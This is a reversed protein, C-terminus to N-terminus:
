EIGVFASLSGAALEIEEACMLELSECEALYVEIEIQIILFEIIATDVIEIGMDSIEIGELVM